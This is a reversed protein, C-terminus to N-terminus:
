IGKRKLTRAPKRSLWTEVEAKVHTDETAGVKTEAQVHSGAKSEVCTEVEAEVHKEETAGVTTKAEVHSDVKSEVRTEM